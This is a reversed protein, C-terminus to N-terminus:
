RSPFRKAIEAERLSPPTGILARLAAVKEGEPVTTPIMPGYEQAVKALQAYFSEDDAAAQKDAKTVVNPASVQPVGDRPAPMLKGVPAPAPLDTKGPETNNAYGAPRQKNELAALQDTRAADAVTNPGHSTLSGAGAQKYAQKVGLFAEVSAIKRLGPNDAGSRECASM